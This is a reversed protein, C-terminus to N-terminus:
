RDNWRRLTTVLIIVTKEKVIKGSVSESDPRM